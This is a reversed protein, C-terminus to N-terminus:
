TQLAYQKTVLKNSLYHETSESKEPNVSALNETRHSYMAIKAQKEVLMIRHRTKSSAKSSYFNNTIDSVNTDSYIIKIRLRQTNFISYKLSVM